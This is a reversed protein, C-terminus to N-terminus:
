VAASRKFLDFIAFALTETFHFLIIRDGAIHGPCLRQPMRSIDPFCYKGM